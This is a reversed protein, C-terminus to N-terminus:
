RRTPLFPLLVSPTKGETIQHALERGTAPGLTVGWMGHGGAIYVGPMASEGILPLGDATVPRPGVWELRRASWDVGELLGTASRIIAALRRSDFAADPARFEMTGAVRLGDEGSPTCAVRVGPFYIPSPVPRGTPVVFSYGRGAQVREKVGLGKGLANLWAGTALVAADCAIVESDSTHVAVRGKERGISTVSKGTLIRGGRRVVAEGLGITFTSPDIFRQGDIRIAFRVGRSLLPLQEHIEGGEMEATELEQGSSRILDFEHILAKAESRDRFAAIIPASHVELASEASVLQDYASISIGNLATLASMSSKWDSMNCHRAFNLLFRWIGVDLTPPVYLPSDADALSKLGYRLISPEPIPISLGPSIWGANGWSSGSAVERREVVTVEAGAEQLFWAVSLGVIGAGAIVVSKRSPVNPM